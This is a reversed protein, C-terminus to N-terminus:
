LAPNPKPSSTRQGTKAQEGFEETFLIREGGM